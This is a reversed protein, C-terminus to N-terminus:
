KRQEAYLSSVLSSTAVDSVSKDGRYRQAIPIRLSFAKKDTYGCSHWNESRTIGMADVEVICSRNPNVYKFPIKRDYAKKYIASSIRVNTPIADCYAGSIAEDIQSIVDKKAIGVKTITEYFGNEKTGLLLSAFPLKAAKGQGKYIGLVVLDLNIFKKLKVWDKTRQGILYNSNPNKCVLGELKDKDTTEIFRRELEQSDDIEWQESVNAVHDCLTQRRQYLPQDILDSGELHMVDFFKVQLPYQKVLDRDLSKKKRKKVAEFGKIGDELGVLEGDYVGQPLNALQQVVDPYAEPNLSNLNRTFLALDHNKHIQVRHGDSKVQVHSTGNHSDIISAYRSATNGSELVLMPKIPQGIIIRSETKNQM